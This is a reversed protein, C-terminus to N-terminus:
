GRRYMELWVLFEHALKTRNQHGREGWKAIYSSLMRVEAEDGEQPTLESRKRGELDRGFDWSGELYQKAVAPPLGRMREEYDRLWEGKPM